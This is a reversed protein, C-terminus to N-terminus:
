SESSVYIADMVEWGIVHGCNIEHDGDRGAGAFCLVPAQAECMGFADGDDPDIDVLGELGEKFEEEDWESDGKGVLRMVRMGNCASTRMRARTVALQAIGEGWGAEFEARIIPYNDTKITAPLTLSLSLLCPLPPLIRIKPIVKEKSPKAARDKPLSPTSSSSSSSATSNTSPTRLSITSTALGKRGPKAKRPPGNAGTGVTSGHNGGTAVPINRSELGIKLSKEREKARRVGILACRKGLPNYEGDHLDGRLIGCGDLIIHQLSTFYVLLMDLENGLVSCTSLDLFVLNPPILAISPDDSAAPTCLARAVQRAPIQIRLSTLSHSLATSHILVSLCPDLQFFVFPQAFAQKQVIQPELPDQIVSLTPLTVTPWRSIALLTSDFYAGRLFQYYNANQVYPKFRLSLYKLEVFPKLFLEELDEPAFNDPGIWINLTQLNPLLRVLHLIVDADVSWSEVSFEKVWAAAEKRSTDVPLIKKQRLRRYLFVAQAAYTIRISHFLHSHSVPSLPIARTVSLVTQQLDSSPVHSLISDYLETPLKDFSM